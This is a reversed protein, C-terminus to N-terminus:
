PTIEDKEELIVAEVTVVNSKFACVILEDVSLAGLPLIEVIKVEVRLAKTRLAGLPLIEVIRVEVRLAMVTLPLMPFKVVRPAVVPLKVLMVPVRVPFTDVFKM